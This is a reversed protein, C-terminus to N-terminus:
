KKESDKYYTASANSLATLNIPQQKKKQAVALLWGGDKYNKVLVDSIIQGLSLPLLRTFRLLRRDMRRSYISEVNVEDFFLQLDRKLGRMDFKWLHGYMPNLKQKDSSQFKFEWNYPVTLIVKGDPQLLNYMNNLFALYNEVHEVVEVATIVDFRGIDIDGIGGKIISNSLPYRTAAGRPYPDVGQVDWGLALAKKLLYGTGCGVDLIRGGASRQGASKKQFHRIESLVYFNIMKHPFGVNDLNRHAQINRFYEEKNLSPNM